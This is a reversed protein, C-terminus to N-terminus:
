HFISIIASTCTSFKFSYYLISLDNYTKNWLWQIVYKYHKENKSQFKGEIIELHQDWHSVVEEASSSGFTLLRKSCNVTWQNASLWQHCGLLWELALRAILAADGSVCYHYATMVSLASFPLCCQVSKLPQLNIM